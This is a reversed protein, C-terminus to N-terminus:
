FDFAAFAGFDGELAFEFFLQRNFSLNAGDFEGARMGIPFRSNNENEEFHQVPLAFKLRNVMFLDLPDQWALQWQQFNWFRVPLNEIADTPNKTPALSQNTSAKAAGATATATPRGARGKEIM